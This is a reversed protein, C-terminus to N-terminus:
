IHEKYNFPAVTQFFTRSGDRTPAPRRVYLVFEALAFMILSTVSVKITRPNTQFPFGTIGQAKIALFGFLGGIIFNLASGTMIRGEEGFVGGLLHYKTWLDRVYAMSREVPGFILGFSPGHVHNTPSDVTISITNTDNTISSTMAVEKRRRGSLSGKTKSEAFSLYMLLTFQINCCRVTLNRMDIYSFGMVVVYAVLFQFVDFSNSKSPVSAWRECIFYFPM